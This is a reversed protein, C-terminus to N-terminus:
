KCSNHLYSLGAMVQAGISLAQRLDVVFSGFEHRALLAREAPPQHRVWPAQARLPLFCAGRTVM